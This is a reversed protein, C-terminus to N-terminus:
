LVRHPGVDGAAEATEEVWRRGAEVVGAERGACSEALWLGKGVASTLLLPMLLRLSADVDEAGAVDVVLSIYVAENAKKSAMQSAPM